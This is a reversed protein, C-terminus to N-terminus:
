TGGGAVTSIVGAPNVKRIRLNGADVIYVNGAPDVAIGRPANLSASTAPGGDGSFGQKDNGAITNIIGATDVKRIRNNGADAIYVNGAPDVAVGSPYYLSASTAPGGDGNFGKQGNGAITSIIGTTNVKLIRNSGGDAIYVNGGPDVAVSLPQILEALTAPGRDGSSQGTGRGAVTTIIG